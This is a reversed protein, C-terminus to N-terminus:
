NKFEGWLRNKEEKDRNKLEDIIKNATTKNLKSLKRFLVVNIMISIVLLTIIVYFM